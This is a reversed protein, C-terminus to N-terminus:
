ERVWWALWRTTVPWTAVAVVIATAVALATGGWLAALMIVLGAVVAYAAALAVVRPWRIRGRVAPHGPSPPQGAALPQRHHPVYDATPPHAALMEELSAYWPVGYYRGLMEAVTEARLSARPSDLRKARVHVALVRAKSCRCGRTGIQTRGYGQMIGIVEAERYDSRLADRPLWYAWFGCGCERAPVPDPHGAPPRQGGGCVAVNEGPHWIGGFVGTLLGDVAGAATGGSLGGFGPLDLHWLRVGSLAGVAFPLDRDSFGPLGDGPQGIM